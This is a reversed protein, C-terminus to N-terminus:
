RDDESHASTPPRFPVGCESCVGTDNGTLDYGCNQCHGAPHRPPTRVCLWFVLAGACVGIAMSLMWSTMNSLGVGLVDCAIGLGANALITVFGFCGMGGVVGAMDNRMSAPRM